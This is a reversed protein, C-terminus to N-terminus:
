SKFLKFPQMLGTQQLTPIAACQSLWYSNLGHKERKRGEKRLSKDNKVLSLSVTLWYNALTGIRPIGQNEM